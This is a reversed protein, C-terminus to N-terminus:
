YFAGFLYQLTTLGDTRTGCEHVKSFGNQLRNVNVYCSTVDSCTNSTEDLPELVTAYSDVRGPQNGWRHCGRASWVVDHLDPAASTQM